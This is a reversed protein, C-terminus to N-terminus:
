QQQQQGTARAPYKRDLKEESVVELASKLMLERIEEIVEDLQELPQSEEHLIRQQVGKRDVPRDVRDGRSDKEGRTASLPWGVASKLEVTEESLRKEAEEESLKVTLEGAPMYGAEELQKGSQLEAEDETAHKPVATMMQEVGQSFNRLLEESHEEELMQMVTKEHCDNVPEPHNLWDELMELEKEWPTLMKITNEEEEGQAAESMKEKMMVTVAPQRETTTANAVCVSAEVPSYPLFVKIGGIMLISKQDEKEILQGQQYSSVESSMKETLEERQDLSMGSNMLSEPLRMKEGKGVQFYPIEARGVQCDILDELSGMENGMQCDSSEESGEQCNV